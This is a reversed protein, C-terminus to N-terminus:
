IGTSRARHATFPEPVYLGTITSSTVRTNSELDRRGITKQNISTTCAPCRCNHRLWVAHYSSEHGDAWSLRLKKGEECPRIGAVKCSPTQALVPATTVGRRRGVAASCPEFSRRRYPTTLILSSVARRQLALPRKSARALVAATRLVVPEILALMAERGSADLDFNLSSRTGM